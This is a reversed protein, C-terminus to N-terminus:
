LGQPKSSALPSTADAVGLAALGTKLAGNLAFTAPFDKEHEGQIFTDVFYFQLIPHLM